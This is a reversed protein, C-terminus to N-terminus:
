SQNVWHNWTKLNKRIGKMAKATDGPNFLFQM